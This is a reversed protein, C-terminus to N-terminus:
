GKPDTRRPSDYHMERDIREVAESGAIDVLVQRYKLALIKNANPNGRRQRIHYDIQLQGLTQGPFDGVLWRHNDLDPAAPPSYMKYRQYAEILETRLNSQSGSPDTILLNPNRRLTGGWLEWFHKQDDPELTSVSETPTSEAHDELALTNQGSQLACYILTVVIGSKRNM